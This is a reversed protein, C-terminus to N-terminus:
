RKLNENRQRILNITLVILLIIIFDITFNRLNWGHHLDNNDIWFQEYYKLPFGINVRPNETGNRTLLSFIVTLFSIVSFLITSIIIYFSIRKFM